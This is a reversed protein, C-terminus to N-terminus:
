LRKVYGLYFLELELDLLLLLVCFSKFGLSIVKVVLYSLESFFYSAQLFTAGVYSLNYFWHALILNQHLNFGIALIYNPVILFRNLHFVAQGIQPHSQLTIRIHKVPNQFRFNIWQNIQHLHFLNGVGILIHNATTILLNFLNLLHYLKRNLM